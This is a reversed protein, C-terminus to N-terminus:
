GIQHVVDSLLVLTNPPITIGNATGGAVDLFLLGRVVLTPTPSLASLGALNIFQTQSNTIVLIPQGAFLTAGPALWFAGTKDDSGAAVLTSFNGEHAQLKLYVSDAAVTDPTGTTTSKTVVGQVIVEQGPTLATHDFTLSAFNVARESFQYITSSSLNIDEVSDLPVVFIDSPETHRVYFQFGTLNGSSDKTLSLVTGILAVNNNTVDSQGEFEIYSGVVNGKSDVYSNTETFTGTLLHNLQDVGFMNTTSTLNVNLSPVQAAGLSNSFLQMVFSGTFQATATAPQPTVSTVFGLTDTMMGFGDTDNPTIATARIVPTMKSAIQGSPDVGVSSRIDFDLLVGGVSDKAIVLPPNIPVVVDSTSLTPSTITVPPTNAPNYTTVQVSSLSVTVKNYTGEPIQGFNLVTFADRLNSLDVQVSPLAAPPSKLFPSSTITGDETTYNLGSVTLRYGLVDALPSDGIFTVVPQSPPLPKTTKGSGCAALVVVAAVLAM